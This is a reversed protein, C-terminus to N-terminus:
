VLIVWNLLFALPKKKSICHCQTAKIKKHFFCLPFYFYLMSWPRLYFIYEEERFLVQLLTYVSHIYNKSM